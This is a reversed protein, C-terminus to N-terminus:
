ALGEAQMVAHATGLQEEQLAYESNDGLQAKVEEAGHGVVTVIEEIKLQSLKILLMNYWQNEM